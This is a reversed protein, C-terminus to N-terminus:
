SRAAPHSRHSLKEFKVGTDKRCKKCHFSHLMHDPENPIPAVMIIKAAGGCKCRIETSTRDVKAM